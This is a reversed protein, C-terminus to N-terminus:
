YVRVCKIWLEIKEPSATKEGDKIYKADEATLDGAV